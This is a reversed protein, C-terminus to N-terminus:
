KLLKSLAKDQGEEIATKFFEYRYKYYKQDIGYESINPYIIKNNKEFKIYEDLPIKIFADNHQKEINTYLRYDANIDNDPVQKDKEEYMQAYIFSGIYVYINNNDKINVSKISDEIVASENITSKYKTMKNIEMLTKIYEQVLQNQELFDKKMLLEQYKAQNNKLSILEYYKERLEELNEETM